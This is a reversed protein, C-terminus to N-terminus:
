SGQTVQKMLSLYYAEFNTIQEDSLHRLYKERKSDIFKNFVSNLYYGSFVSTGVIGFAIAKQPTM